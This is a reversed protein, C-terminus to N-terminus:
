IVPKIINQPEAISQDREEPIQYVEPAKEKEQFIQIM